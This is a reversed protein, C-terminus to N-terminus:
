ARKATVAWTTGPLVTRDDPSRVGFRRFLWQEATADGKVWNEIFLGATMRLEDRAHGTRRLTVIQLGADACLITLDQRLYHRNWGTPRSANPEDGRKGIDVAYRHLNMADLWALPGTQPVTFRLTGQPVLVRALERLWAAEDIARSIADDRIDISDLTRSDLPLTPQEADTRWRTIEAGHLSFVADACRDRARADLNQELELHAVLM